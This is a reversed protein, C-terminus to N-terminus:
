AKQPNSTITPVKDYRVAAYWVEKERTSKIHIVYSSDVNM